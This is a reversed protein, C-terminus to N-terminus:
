IIDNTLRNGKEWQNYLENFASKEAGSLDEKERYQRYEEKLIEKGRSLCGVSNGYQKKLYDVIHELQNYRVSSKLNRSDYEAIVKQQLEDLSM